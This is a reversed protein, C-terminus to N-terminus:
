EDDESQLMVAYPSKDAGHCRVGGCECKGSLMRTVAKITSTDRDSPPRRSFEDTSPGAPAPAAEGIPM